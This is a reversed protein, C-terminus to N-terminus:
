GKRIQSHGGGLPPIGLCSLGLPGLLAEEQVGPSVAPFTNTWLELDAKREEEEREGVM